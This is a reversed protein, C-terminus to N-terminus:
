LTKGGHVFVKEWSNIMMELRYNETAHMRANLGRRMGEYPDKLFSIIARSLDEKNAPSVLWGHIGDEILECIGDVESAIIPRGAAMAELVTNPMGEFRSPQVYLDFIGLLNPVDYRHGIFHVKGNLKLRRAQTQLSEGAEGAGILVLHLGATEIEAFAELLVDFGKQHTLRGVSGIITGNRPLGLEDYLAFRQDSTTETSLEVGNPIVIIKDHPVGEKEMVFSRLEESNLVFLDVLKATTRVLWRQCFTYHINRARISSILYKSGAVKALLRGIVDSVFLLTVVIEFNERRLWRYARLFGYGKLLNQKGIIQVEIGKIRLRELITQDDSDNLVLVAQAYGRDALGRSLNVLMQQTGDPRLHDIIYLIKM